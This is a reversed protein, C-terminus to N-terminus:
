YCRAHEWIQQHWSSTPQNIIQQQNANNDNNNNSHQDRHHEHETDQSDSSRDDDDEHRNHHHRRNNKNRRKARVEDINWDFPTTSLNWKYKRLVQDFQEIWMGYNPKDYFELKQVYKLFDCYVQPLGECLVHSRTEMKCRHVDENRQRRLSRDESGDKLKNFKKTYKHWPLSGRLFHLLIYALSQMDDRRSAECGQHTAWGMFYATGVSSGYNKWPIHHYKGTEQNLKVFPKSLGFDVLYVTQMKRQEEEPTEDGTRYAICINSPKMDRHVIGCRHIYELHKLLSIAMATVTFLSFQGGYDKQLNKLNEGMRSIVLLHLSETPELYSSSRSSGASSYDSYSHSSSSSSNTAAVSSSEDNMLHLHRKNKSSKQGYSSYYLLCKPLGTYLSASLKWNKQNVDVCQLLNKYNCYEQYLTPRKNELLIEVKVVVPLGHYLGTFVRGYSGEGIYDDLTLHDIDHERIFYRVEDIHIKREGDRSM